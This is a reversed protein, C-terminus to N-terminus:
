THKLHMIMKIYRDLLISPKKMDVKVFGMENMIIDKDLSKNDNFSM